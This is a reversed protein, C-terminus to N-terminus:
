NTRYERIRYERIRPNEIQVLIILFRIENSEFLRKEWLIAWQNSRFDRGSRIVNLGMRNMGTVENIM